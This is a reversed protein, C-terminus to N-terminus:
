ALSLPGEAPGAMSESAPATRPKARGGPSPSQLVPWLSWARQISSTALAMPQCAGPSPESTPSQCCPRRAPAQPYFWPCASFLSSAAEQGATELAGGSEPHGGDTEQDEWPPGRIKELAENQAGPSGGVLSDKPDEEPSLLFFGLGLGPGWIAMGSHNTSPNPSLGRSPTFSPGPSPDTSPSPTPLSCCVVPCPHSSCLDLTRIVPGPALSTLSTTVSSALLQM